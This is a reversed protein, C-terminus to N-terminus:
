TDVIQGVRDRGCRVVKGRVIADAVAVHDILIKSHCTTPLGAVDIIDKIGVPLGHLKGRPRGAMIVAEAARAAAMAAEADLRIFAHLTPDLRAIRDLLVTTLEVPSLKRDSIAQAAQAATMWHLDVM